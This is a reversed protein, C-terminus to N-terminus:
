NSCVYCNEIECTNKYSAIFDNKVYITFGRLSHTYIKEKVISKAGNFRQVIKTRIGKKAFNHHVQPIKYNNTGRTLYNHEEFHKVFIGSHFYTPLLQNELKYCFKVELLACLDPLKLIKLNKFIPETHANYKSLSILRLAKKQLKFLKECNSNWLLNGYNLHPLFLTSYITHLVTKPLYNKLKNLVANTKNLKNAIYNIHTKWSLHKDIYIVLFNFEDVYDIKINEAIIEPPNVLKQPMHFIMAKTKSINLSLKNVKLWILIKNLENNIKNTQTTENGFTNLTASLTTDDAYIIPYFKETALHMDNVYILFLLPGLISGQPVGTSIMLKESQNDKIDIYQKRNSLYSEFVKLATNQIGYYSLKHLLINHDLTDFAKSLDLYINIPIENNDLRSIVKDILELAALETSHSSRFGYQSDYYLKHKTFHEHLQNHIVREIVKSVSPLISIPRYNEFYHIDGKKYIPLVKAIKLQDPFIGTMFVQNIILTLPEVLEDILNKLLKNSMRDFGCTSKTKLSNITKRVTNSNILQFQFEESFPCTLYDKFTNREPQVIKSALSPGINVFYKNFEDAIKVTNSELVGNISFEIPLEDKQKNKNLIDKIMGWTKKIDNKYNSFCIEYYQKKALRINQKLIRNYTTLNIKKNIYEDTNLPTNHLNKYLKDRYRISNIIGQTIWKTKKHKHKNYKVVKVPLHRDIAKTLNDNIISYSYNPNVHLNNDLRTMLNLAKLELKLNEISQLNNNYVKVYKIANRKIKLYDLTVFYPQHDSIKHTIIGALTESFDRSIKVLANDILTASHNTIRTPFTIKPIFGNSLLVDFYEQFIPREQIKLLDINFDGVIVSETQTNQLIALINNFEDIFNTYNELNDRPPRYVNGLTIKKNSVIGSNLQEFQIEIFLADCTTQNSSIDLINYRFTEKLFIAVGGHASCSAPLAVLQYGDINFISTEMQKNLWTEQLCIASFECNKYSLTELYVKLNDFKAPLSQCNVSFISFVDSKQSLTAILKDDDFYYSESYISPIEDNDDDSIGAFNNNIIDLLSTHIM